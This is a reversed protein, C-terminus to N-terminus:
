TFQRRAPEDDIYAATYQYLRKDSRRIAVANFVPGIVRAGARELRSLTEEIERETQVNARLVLITADASRAAMSADSVALVPPSDVIVFDFSARFEDLLEDMRPTSLLVSPNATYPGTSIFSLRDDIIPRIARRADIQGALLDALGCARPQGFRAALNGRRLDADILLVRSGTEALLVALNSAVFSKGTSPTPSTIVLVKGPLDAVESVVATRVCRLAEVSVDQPCRMALLTSRLDCMSPAADDPVGARGDPIRPAPADGCTDPERQTADVQQLCRSLRVQEESFPIVGLGSLRFRREVAVPDEIKSSFRRPVTVFLVGCMLGLVSGIPIIFASQPKIPAAPRVAADLIHANGITGARTVSLENAKGVMAVYIQEAVKADRTLDASQRAAAPMSAFRAEFNRKAMNLQGLQQDITRVQTSETTFHELMQTRQITLTAIQRDFDMIGQLYVQSESAPQLSATTAQHRALKDEAVKMETRLRPLEGNVFALMRNAEDQRYAIHSAMYNQAIDNAIATARVPDASEYSVKILGTDAGQESVRLDRLFRQMADIENYRTIGFRTGPRAVLQTILIRVGSGSAVKGVAGEVLVHGDPDALRYGGDQLATFELEKSELSAPVDLVAIDAQEGGWGYGSLGLWPAALHGPTAFREAIRGLVPVARPTVSVFLRYREIIPTLVARSRIIQIETQSLQAMPTAPQQTQANPQAAIGLGGSNSRDVQLVADASYVRTALVCYLSAAITVAATILIVTWINDIVVRMMEKPSSGGNEDSADITGMELQRAIM